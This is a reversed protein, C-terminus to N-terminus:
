KVVSLKTNFVVKNEKIIQLFYIGNSFETLDISGKLNNNNITYRKIISGVSNYVEIKYNDAVSNVDLLEYNFLGTSPNPFIKFNTNEIVNEKVGVYSSCEDVITNFGHGQNITGFVEYISDKAVRFHMPVSHLFGNPAVSTTFNFAPESPYCGILNSDLKILYNKPISSGSWTQYNCYINKQEDSTIEVPMFSEDGTNATGIVYQKQVIGNTDIKLFLGKRENSSTTTFSVAAAVIFNDITSCYSPFVVHDTTIKFTKLINGGTDIKTLCLESYAANWSGLTDAVNTNGILYIGNNIQTAYFGDRANTGISKVWKINGISDLKMLFADNVAVSDGNGSILLEKNPLKLCNTLNFNKNNIFMNQNITDLNKNLWWLSFNATSSTPGNYILKSIIFTSDTLMKKFGIGPYCFSKAKFTKYSNLTLSSTSAKAFIHTNNYSNYSTCYGSYFLDNTSNTAFPMLMFTNGLSNGLVSTRLSQLTDLNTNCLFNINSTKNGDGPVDGFQTFIIKNNYYFVGGGWTNEPNIDTISKIAVKTQACLNGVVFLIIFFLSKTFFPNLLQKVRQLFISNLLM